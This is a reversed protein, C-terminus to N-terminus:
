STSEFWRRVEKHGSNAEDKSKNAGRQSFKSRYQEILKDLKDVVEEGSSVKKRRKTDKRARQPELGGDTKAKRKYSKTTSEKRNATDKQM